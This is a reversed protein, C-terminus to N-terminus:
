IIKKSTRQSLNKRGVGGGAGEERQRKASFKTKSISKNVRLSIFYNAGLGNTLSGLAFLHKFVPFYGKEVFTWTQRLNVVLSSDQLNILQIVAKGKKCALVM